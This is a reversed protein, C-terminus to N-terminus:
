LLQGPPARRPQQQARVPRGLGTKAVLAAASTAQETAASLGEVVSSLTDGAAETGARAPGGWSEAATWAEESGSVNAPDGEDHVGGSPSTSGTAPPEETAPTIPEAIPMQEVTPAVPDM